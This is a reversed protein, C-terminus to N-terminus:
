WGCHSHEKICCYLNFRVTIFNLVRGLASTALGDVSLLEGILVKLLLVGLRTQEGHGISTFVRLDLPSCQRKM